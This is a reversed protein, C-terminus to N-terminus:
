ASLFKNHSLQVWSLNITKLKGIFVKVLVSKHIGDITFVVLVSSHIGDGFQSCGTCIDM